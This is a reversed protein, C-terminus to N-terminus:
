VDAADPMRSETPHLEFPISAACDPFQRKSVQDFLSYKWASLAWVQPYCTTPAVLIEDANWWALDKLRLM